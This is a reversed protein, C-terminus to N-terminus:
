SFREMGAQKLEARLVALCQEEVPEHSLYKPYSPFSLTRAGVAHQSVRDIADYM